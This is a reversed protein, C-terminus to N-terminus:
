GDMYEDVRHNWNTCAPFRASLSLFQSYLSRISIHLHKCHSIAQAAPAVAASAPSPPNLISSHIFLNLISSLMNMQASRAYRTGLGSWVQALSAAVARHVAERDAQRLPSRLLDQNVLLYVIGVVLAAAAVVVVVGEQGAM